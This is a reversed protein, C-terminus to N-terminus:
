AWYESQRENWRDWAAEACDWCLVDDYYRKVTDSFDRECTECYEGM